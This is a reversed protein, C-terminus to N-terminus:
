HSHEASGKGLEAKLIFTEGSAVSEGLKLGSLVEVLVGNDKGIKIDRQEFGQEGDPATAKVFAVYENSVFVASESPILLKSNASTLSISVNVFMGPLWKGKTNELVIRALATRTTKSLTPRIYTIAGQQATSTTKSHILAVQGKKVSRLDNMHVAANIWVTDFNAITFLIKDNTVFEGLSADKDIVVGSTESRIEYVSLSENSQVTALLSGKKVKEGVHKAVKKLTGEFRPAVHVLSDGNIAVEGPLILSTELNGKIVKSISIGAREAKEKSIEIFGEEHEDGHDDHEGKHGEHDDHGQHGGTSKEGHASGEHGHDDHGNDEAFCVSSNLSYM